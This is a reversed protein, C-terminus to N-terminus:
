KSVMVKFGGMSMRAFDFPMPKSPDFNAMAPDSMVKKNVQERHAKSKYVIFSFIVTEGPKVKALKPFIIGHGKKPDDLICEKYDVAGHKKWLKLGMLAMKKYDKLKSKKVPIVFGDVYAM